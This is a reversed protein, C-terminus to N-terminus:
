TRARAIRVRAIPRPISRTRSSSRSSGARARSSRSARSGSRRAPDDAHTAVFVIREGRELLFKLCAHGTDSYAFVAIRTM